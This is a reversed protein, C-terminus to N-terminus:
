QFGAVLKSAWCLHVHPTAFSRSTTWARQAVAPADPPPLHTRRAGPGPSIFPSGRASPSSCSPSGPFFVSNSPFWFPVVVRIYGSRSPYSLRLSPFFHGSPPRWLPGTARRPLHTNGHTPFVDCADLSLHASVVVRQLRWDVLFIAAIAARWRRLCGVIRRCDPAQNGDSFHGRRLAVQPWYVQLSRKWRHVPLRLQRMVYQLLPRRQRTAREVRLFSFIPLCTNTQRPSVTRMQMGVSRVLSFHANGAIPQFSSDARLKNCFLAVKGRRGRREYFPFFRCVPLQKGHTFGEWECGWQMQKTAILAELLAPLM